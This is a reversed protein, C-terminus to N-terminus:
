GHTDRSRSRRLLWQDVSLRDHEHHFVLLFFVVSFMLNHAVGGANGAIALGGTLLVLLIGGAMASLRTLLGFVLLVGLATEVFPLTWGFLYVWIPPLWTAAFDGRLTAAFSFPGTRLKEIGYLAFVCGVTVRLLGYALARQSLRSEERPLCRDLTAGGRGAPGPWRRNNRPGM